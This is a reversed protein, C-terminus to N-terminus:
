EKDKDDDKDKDKDDEEVKNAAAASELASLRGELGALAPPPSPTTVRFPSTLAALAASASAAATPATAPARAPAPARTPAAAAASGDDATSLIADVFSETRESFSSAPSPSASINLTYLGRLPETGRPM